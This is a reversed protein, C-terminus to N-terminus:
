GAANKCSAYVSLGERMQIASSELGAMYSELPDARQAENYAGLGAIVTVIGDSLRSSRTSGGRFVKTLRGKVIDGVIAADRAILPVAAQIVGDPLCAPSLQYPLVIYHEIVEM